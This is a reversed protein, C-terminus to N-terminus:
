ISSTNAMSKSYMMVIVVAAIVVITVIGTVVTRIVRVM